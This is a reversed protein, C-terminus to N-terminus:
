QPTIEKLRRECLKASESSMRFIHDKGNVIINVACKKGCYNYTINDIKDTSYTKIWFNFVRVKGKEYIAVGRHAFAYVIFLFVLVLLLLLICKLLMGDIMMIAVLASLSTLSAITLVVVTSNVNYCYYFVRPNIENFYLLINYVIFAASFCIIWHVASKYTELINAMDYIPFLLGALLTYLLILALHKFIKGM